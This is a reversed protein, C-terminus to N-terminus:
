NGGGRPGGPARPLDVTAGGGGGDDEEGVPGGGGEDDKPDTGVAARGSIVSQGPGTNEWFLAKTADPFQILNFLRGADARLTYYVNAQLREAEASLGRRFVREMVTMSECIWWEQTDYRSQQGDNFNTETLAIPKGRAMGRYERALKAADAARDAYIHVSMVDVLALGGAQIMRRAARVGDRNGFWAASYLLIQNDPARDANYMDVIERARTLYRGVYEEPIIGSFNFPENMFEIHRIEPHTHILSSLKRAMDNPAPKRRGGQDVNDDIVAIVRDPGFTELVGAFLPDFDNVEFFEPDGPSTRDKVVPALRIGSIGDKFIELYPLYRTGCPTGCNQLNLYFSKPGNFNNYESTCPQATAPMATVHVGLVLIAACWTVATKM